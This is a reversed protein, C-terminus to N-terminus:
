LGLVRPVIVPVPWVLGPILPRGIMVLRDDHWQRRHLAPHDQAAQDVLVVPGCSHSASVQLDSQQPM